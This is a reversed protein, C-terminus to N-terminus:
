GSRPTLFQTCGSYLIYQLFHKVRRSQWVWEGRGEQQEGKNEIRELGSCETQTTCTPFTAEWHAWCPEVNLLTFHSKFVAYASFNGMAGLTLAIRKGVLHCSYSPHCSKFWSVGHHRLHQVCTDCYPLTDKWSNFLDTQTAFTYLTQILIDHCTTKCPTLRSWLLNDM